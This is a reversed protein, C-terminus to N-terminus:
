LCNNSTDLVIPETGVPPQEAFQLSELPFAKKTTRAQARTMVVSNNGSYLVILLLSSSMLLLIIVFFVSANSNDNNNFKKMTIRLNRFSCRTFSYM